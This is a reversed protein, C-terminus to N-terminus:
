RAHRRICAADLVIFRPDPRRGCADILRALAPGRGGAMTADAAAAAAPYDHRWWAGAVHAPTFADADFLLLNVAYRDLYGLLAAIDPDYAARILGETRERLRRIYGTSYPIAYERTALVTRGTFAPLSDAEESLSAIVADKPQAAIEAYLAPYRGHVYETRPIVSLAATLAFLAAVLGLAAAGLAAQRRRSRFAWRAARVFAPALAVGLVVMSVARLTHQGYRAPLHLRFLLLHAAVFLATGSAVAAALVWAELRPRGASGRARGARLGVWVPLGLAFLLEGVAIAPAVPLGAAYASHCGWQVPLLGSRIGCLYFDVPDALFFESRGGPQFAPTARAEALAITPGFAGAQIMFPLLALLVAGCGVAARRWDARDRSLAPRGDRWRLLWLALVGFYVLSMQPYLLGQLLATVALALTRREVLWCLFALFVPVAFGRPMGSATDEMLWMFFVTLASATFAAAPVPVIRLTLRFAFYALALGLAPPLLKDLVMPDIGLLAAVRFLAQYGLPTVSQWYEANLDGPFLAPDLWRRMWFLFQRADDQVVYSSSFAELLGKFPPLAAYLLALVLAGTASGGEIFAAFPGTTPM